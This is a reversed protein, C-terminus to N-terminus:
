ENHNKLNVAWDFIDAPSPIYINIINFPDSLLWSFAGIFLYLVFPAILIALIELVFKIQNKM